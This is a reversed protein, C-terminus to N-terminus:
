VFLSVTAKTLSPCRTPGDMDTQRMKQLLPVPPLMTTICQYAVALNMPYVAPVNLNQM